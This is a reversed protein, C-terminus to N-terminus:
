RNTKKNVTPKTSTTKTSTTKTSTTKNGTLAKTIAKGLDQVAQTAAQKAKNKEQAATTAKSKAKSTAKSKAASVAAKNQAAAATSDISQAVSRWFDYDDTEVDADTIAPPQAAPTSAARSGGGGGTAAAAQQKMANFDERSIGAKALMDDSVDGGAALAQVIYNYYMQRDTSMKNYEFEEKWQAQQAEWQQQQFSFQKENFANAIADQEKKYGFEAEINKQARAAEEKQFALNENFQRVGEEYQQRLYADNAADRDIQYRRNEYDAIKESEIDNAAKIKSNQLGALTNMAYSSRQLGRGMLTRDQQSIAKDFSLNSAEKKKDYSYTLSDWARQEATMNDVDQKNKATTAAM